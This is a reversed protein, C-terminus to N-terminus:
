TPKPSIKLQSFTTSTYLKIDKSQFIRWFKKPYIRLNGNKLLFPKRHTQEHIEIDAGELPIGISKCIPSRYM